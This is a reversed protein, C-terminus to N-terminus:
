PRPPPVSLLGRLARPLAAPDDVDFPFRLRHEFTTRADTIRLTLGYRDLGVPLIVTADATADAARLACMRALDQPRGGLRELEDTEVTALPDPAARRYRRMSVVLEDLSVHTPAVVLTRRDLAARCCPAALRGLVEVRARVRDPGHLPYLHAARVLVSAPAGAGGFVSLLPSGEDVVLVVRGGLDVRHTAVSTLVGRAFVDLVPAVTLTTRAREALTPRRPRVAQARVSGFRVM